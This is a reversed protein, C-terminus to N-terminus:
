RRSSTSTRTLRSSAAFAQDAKGLRVPEGNLLISGADPQHLGAIVKALTSKGAGNEGVLGRVRGPAISFDVGRLARVAGFTKVIGRCELLPRDLRSPASAAGTM